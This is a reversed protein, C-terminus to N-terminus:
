DAKMIYAFPSVYTLHQGAERVEKAGTEGMNIVYANVDIVPKPFPITLVAGTQILNPNQIRNLKVIEQVTTGYRQAIQWLTEGAQVTHVRAPIVLVTGPKLMN